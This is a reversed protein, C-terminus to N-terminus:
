YGPGLVLGGDLGSRRLRRRLHVSTNAVSRAWWHWRPTSTSAEVHETPHGPHGHELSRCPRYSSLPPPTRSRSVSPGTVPTVM